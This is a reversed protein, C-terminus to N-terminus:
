QSKEFVCQPFPPLSPPPLPELECQVQINRDWRPYLTYPTARVSMFAQILGSVVLLQTKTQQAMQVDCMFDSMVPFTQMCPLRAM